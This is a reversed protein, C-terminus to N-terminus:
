YNATHHYILTKGKRHAGTVGDTLPTSSPLAELANEVGSGLGVTEKVGVLPMPHVTLWHVNHSWLARNGASLHM